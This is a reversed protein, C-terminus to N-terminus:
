ESLYSKGIALTWGVSTWVLAAVWNNWLSIGGILPFFCVTLTAASMGLMWWQSQQFLTALAAHYIQLVMICFLSVGVVGTEAGLLLYVNHPHSCAMGWSQLHGMQECVERYTHLGSGLWVSAKWADLAAQFVLGYDSTWFHQTKELVSLITREFTHPALWFFLSILLIFCLFCRIVVTPKVPNEKLLGLGVMSMGLGYLLLAMREGTMLLFIMGFCIILWQWYFVSPQRRFAPLLIILFNAIFFVRLVMIGPLPAHYPGSLRHDPLLLHGLVDTGHVYQWVCDLMILCAILTLSVLFRIKATDTELLWYTLACAFLPWRLFLLSHLLSEQPHLSLFSNVTALYAFFLLATKLWPTALWGWKKTLFCHWLFALGTLTVALDAFSRSLLLLVPLLALWSFRIFSFYANPAFLQM